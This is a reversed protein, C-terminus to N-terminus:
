ARAPVQHVPISTKLSLRPVTFWFTTGRGPYSYLGVSGGLSDVLRKVIALGLGAGHYARSNSSDVQRFPDFISEHLYPDIGIGTDSVSYRLQGNQVAVRLEITGAATFKLANSLLNLLIQRVRVADSIWLEPVGPNSLVCTAIGKQRAQMQISSLAERALDTTQFEEAELAIRNSTHMSCDLLENIMHLLQQSSEQIVSACEKQEGDLKTDLLMMCMGTINNLPTRLEHSVTALFGSKARHEEPDVRPGARPQVRETNAKCSLTVVLTVGYLVMLMVLAQGWRVHYGSFTRAFLLALAFSGAPLHLYYLARRFGFRTQASIPVILLIFMWSSELGTLYVAWALLLTDLVPLAAIMAAHGRKKLLHAASSYVATAIVYVSAIPVPILSLYIGLFLFGCM